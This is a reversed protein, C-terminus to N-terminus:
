DCNDFWAESVIQSEPGVDGFIMGMGGLAASGVDKSAVLHHICWQCICHGCESALLRGRVPKRLTDISPGANMHHGLPSCPSLGVAWKSSWRSSHSLPCEQGEEIISVVSPSPLADLNPNLWDWDQILLYGTKWLSRAMYTVKVYPDNKLRM